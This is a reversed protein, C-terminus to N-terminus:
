KDGAVVRVFGMRKCWTHCVLGAIRLAEAM